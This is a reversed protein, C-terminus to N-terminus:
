YPVNRQLINLKFDLAGASRNSHTRVFTGVKPDRKNRSRGACLLAGSRTQIRITPTDTDIQDLTIINGKGNLM